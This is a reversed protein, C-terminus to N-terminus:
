NRNNHAANLLPLTINLSFTGDEANFDAQGGHAVAIAAISRTGYGPKDFPPLPLGDKIEVRGEYSNEISMCLLANQINMRVSVIRREPVPCAAAASIANELGNSLLSCLETDSLPIPDPLNLDVDITVEAQKAKAYFTSLVLNVTENECFRIPTIAVIDSQVANVYSKIKEINGESAMGQLVALHHRMDHRYTAASKQMLRLSALESQAGRLQASLMDRELSAQAQKKMEIYYLFIFAIYIISLVSPMFQIAGRTGQYLFDTYITTIYDFLYYVLTVSGLMLCTKFSREMMQMVTGAVYKRFLYYTVFVAAIYVIYEVLTSRFVAGSIIGIWRPLQCCLYASLVSVASISWPRKMYITLFLLLPLHVIMPYLKSTLEIDFLWWFATQAILLIACACSVALNNKQNRKIGAFCVSLAVGLLLSFGYQIIGLATTLM